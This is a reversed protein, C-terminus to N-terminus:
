LVVCINILLPQLGKSQAMGTAKGEQKSAVM